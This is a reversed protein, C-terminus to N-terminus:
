RRGRAFNIIGGKKPTVIKDQAAKAEMGMYVNHLKYNVRSQGIELENRTCAGVYTAIGRDTKICAVVVDDLDVFNNPNELFKAKKEEALQEATKEVPVEQQAKEEGIITETSM